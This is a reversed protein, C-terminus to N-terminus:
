LVLNVFYIEIRNMEPCRQSKLVYIVRVKQAKDFIVRVKQAKDVIVRGNFINM